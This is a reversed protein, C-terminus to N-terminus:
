AIGYDHEAPLYIGLSQNMWMEINRCYETHEQKTLKRTTTVEIKEDGLTLSEKKLFKYKCIEHLEDVTHGTKDSLTKLVCGWYYKNQQQSRSPIYEGCKPCIM